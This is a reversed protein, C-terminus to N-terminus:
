IEGNQLKLIATKIHPGYTFWEGFLRKKSLYQHVRKEADMAEYQNKFEISAICDLKLGFENELRKIRVRPIGSFGIKVVFDSHAFYVYHKQDYWDM